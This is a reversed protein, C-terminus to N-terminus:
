LEDSFSWWNFECSQDIQIKTISILKMILSHLTKLTHSCNMWHWPFNQGDNSSCSICIYVADILICVHVWRVIRKDIYIISNIWKRKFIFLSIMHLLKGNKCRAKLTQSALHLQAPVACWRLTPCTWRRILILSYHLTRKLLRPTLPCHLLQEVWNSPLITIRQWPLPRLHCILWHAVM